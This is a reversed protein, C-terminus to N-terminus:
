ASNEFVNLWIWWDKHDNLRCVISPNSREKLGDEEFSVNMKNVFTFCYRTQFGWMEGQGLSKCMKTTCHYKAALTVQKLLMTSDVAVVSLPWHVGLHHTCLAGSFLPLSTSFWLWALAERVGTDWIHEAAQRLIKKCKACNVCVHM